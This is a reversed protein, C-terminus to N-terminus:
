LEHTIEEQRTLNIKQYVSFITSIENLMRHREAINENQVATVLCTHLHNNLLHLTVRDLAGQVAQIQRVIELCCLQDQKAMQAIAEIHSRSHILHQRINNKLAVDM